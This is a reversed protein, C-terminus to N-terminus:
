ASLRFELTPQQQRYLLPLMPPAGQDNVVVRQVGASFRTIDVQLGLSTGFEKHYSEPAPPLCLFPVLQEKECCVIHSMLMRQLEYVLDKITEGQAALDYELVQAVWWPKGGEGEERRVLVRARLNHESM